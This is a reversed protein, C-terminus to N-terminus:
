KIANLKGDIVQLLDNFEDFTISEGDISVLVLSVLRGHQQLFTCPSKPKGNAIVDICEYRFQDGPDSPTFTAELRPQWAGAYWKEEWESYAFEAAEPGPYVGVDHSLFIGEGAKYTVSKVNGELWDLSKYQWKDSLDAKVIHVEEFQFNVTEGIDPDEVGCATCLLLISVSWFIVSLYIRINNRM